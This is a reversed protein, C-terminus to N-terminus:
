WPPETGNFALFHASQELKLDSLVDGMGKASQDITLFPVSYKENVGLLGMDTQVWGPDLPIVTFKESEHLANHFQIALMNLAAKSIPYAGDFGIVKNNSEMQMSASRSTMLAIQRTSSARLSTLFAKVVRFPGNVNVDFYEALRESSTELTQDPVGMAANVILLDVRPIDKAAEKIEDENTMDFYVVQVGEPFEPANKKSRVRAIVQVGRSHFETVLGYGIGRSAGM